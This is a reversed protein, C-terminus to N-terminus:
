SFCAPNILYREQKSTSWVCPPAKGFCGQITTKTTGTRLGSKEISLEFISLLNPPYKFESQIQAKILSEYSEIYSNIQGIMKKDEHSYNKEEAVENGDESDSYM